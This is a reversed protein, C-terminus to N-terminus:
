SKAVLSAWLFVGKARSLVTDSLSRPGDDLHRPLINRVHEGIDQANRGSVILELAQVAHLSINPYFLSSWCIRLKGQHRPKQISREFRRIVELVESDSCEDLADVLVEVDHERAQELEAHFLDALETTHWQLNDTYSEKELFHALVVCRSSPDLRMMSQMLTRYLAEPSKEM